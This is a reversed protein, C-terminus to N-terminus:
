YASLSQLAKHWRKRRLTGINMRGFFNDLEDEDYSSPQLASPSTPVNPDNAIVTLKKALRVNDQHMRILNKTRVAGRFKMDGIADINSLVTEVNGFKKLVNAATKPGVGPVGEINDVTDGCLALLDAIQAPPVGWLKEVGKEDLQKNKAFEWWLDDIRILQTLDKDATIITCAISNKRLSRSLTGIIDDAEYRNSVFGALGALDILERCYAFQRKLEEPAPPRNAKYNPDIERRWCNDMKQDFACAIYQPQAQELIQLVTDAYGHVANVPHGDVDCLDDPWTYWGRFIYISSDLLYARPKSESDTM